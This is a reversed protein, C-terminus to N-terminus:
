SDQKAEFFSRLVLRVSKFLYFVALICIIVGPILIWWLNNNKFAITLVIPGIFMLLITFLFSKLGKFLLDNNAFIEKPM